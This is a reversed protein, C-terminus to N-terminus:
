DRIDFSYTFLQNNRELDVSIYSDDKINEWLKYMQDVQNIEHGNVRRLIDGSRGGLEYVINDRPVRVLRLGEMQGDKMYPSIAIQTLIENVKQFVKTEVDSRSLVKRVERGAPFQERPSREPPPEPGRAVQKQMYRYYMPLVITNRGDNLLVRDREIKVIEANDLRDGKRYLEANRQGATRIIAISRNGSLLIVGNLEFKRLLPSETIVPEQAGPTQAQQQVPMAFLPSSLISVENRLGIPGGSDSAGTGASKGSLAFETDIRPTFLSKELVTGILKSAQFLVLVGVVAYALFFLKKIM